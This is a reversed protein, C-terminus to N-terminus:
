HTPADPHHRRTRIMFVTLASAAATAVWFLFFGIAYGTMPSVDLPPTMTMTLAVPDVFAFFVMTSASAVLFSCWGTTAIDRQLRSWEKLEPGDDDNAQEPASAM